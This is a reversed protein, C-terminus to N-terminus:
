QGVGHAHGQPRAPPVDHDTFFEARRHDGFVAHGHGLLDLKFVVVLVHARLHQALDRRLGVVQRAVARGRRGHQRLRDEALPKLVDRRAGVRHMQLSADIPADLGGDGLDLPHRLLYLVPFVQGVHARDGGVAVPHDAVQEGLRHLLDAFVADHRDLLGLRDFGREVDDLPHLEIAAVDRGIEDGVGLLHFRNEFLRQDQQVLLFDRRHVVDKRDQLLGGLRPATQQDDGLVDVGFRERSQDDVFQAPRQLDRRDLRRGEAVAALRHEFIEGDQGPPRTILSSM